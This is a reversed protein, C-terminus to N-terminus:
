SIGLATLLVDARRVCELAWRDACKQEGEEDEDADWGMPPSYYCYIQLAFHARLTQRGAGALQALQMQRRLVDDNM